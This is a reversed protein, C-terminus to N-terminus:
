PRNLSSSLNMLDLPHVRILGWRPSDLDAILFFVIAFVFPLTLSVFAGPRRAGVGLLLAGFFAVTLMMIWAGPPIRNLWAAETYGQRNLADNVGAVTLSVVAAPQGVVGNRVASWLEAGVQDTEKDIQALQVPDRTVYWAIRKDLYKKLQAQAAAAHASPLLEVRLYETGIANTEEEEYNKRQDYRSVSMSFTFGIIIGLLTFTAAQIITFDARKDEDLFDPRRNRIANGVKVALWLVAFSFFFLLIPYRM